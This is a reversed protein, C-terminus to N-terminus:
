RQGDMSQLENFLDDAALRFHTLVVAAACFISMRPDEPDWARRRRPLRHSFASVHLAVAEAIEQRTIAGAEAFCARVEARSLISVQIGRDAALAVLSRGLRCIRQARSSRSREFTELVLTEPNHRDLLREAKRLCELNKRKGAKITGWDYALFPGEFVVWGFGRSTPHIGLVRPLRVGAASM